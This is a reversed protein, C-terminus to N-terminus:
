NQQQCIQTRLYSAGNNMYCKRKLPQTLLLLWYIVVGREKNKKQIQTRPYMHLDHLIRAILVYMAIHNAVEMGGDSVDPMEEWTLGGQGGWGM